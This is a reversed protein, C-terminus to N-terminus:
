KWLALVAGGLTFTMALVERMGLPEALRVPASISGTLPVLLVSTSAAVPPLRRLAAFWALYCIRVPSNVLYGTAWATTANFAAIDPREVALGIVM